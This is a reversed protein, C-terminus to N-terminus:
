VQVTEGTEARWRIRREALLEERVVWYEHKLEEVPEALRQFAEAFALQELEECIKALRDAGLTASSGKLSHAARAVTLGDCIALAEVLTALRRESDHLYLDILEIVLDSAEDCQADALSRLVEVDVAPAYMTDAAM